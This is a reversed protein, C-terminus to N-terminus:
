PPVIGRKGSDVDRAVPAEFGVEMRRDGARVEDQDGNGGTRKAPDGGPHCVKAARHDSGRLADLVGGPQRHAAHERFQKGVARGGREGARAERNFYGAARGRRDDGGGGIRGGRLEHLRDKVAGLEAHVTRRIAETDLEAARELIDDGDRGAHAVPEAEAVVRLRREDGAPLGLHATEADGAARAGLREGAQAAEPVEREGAEGAVAPIAREAFAKATPLCDLGDGGSSGSGLPHGGRKGGKVEGAPHAHVNGDDFLDVGHEVLPLVNVLPDAIEQLPIELLFVSEMGALGTVTRTGALVELRPGPKSVNPMASRSYLRTRTVCTAERFRSGTMVDGM